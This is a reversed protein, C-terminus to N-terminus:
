RRIFCRTWFLVARASMWVKSPSPSSPISSCCKADRCPTYASWRIFRRPINSNSSRCSRATRSRATSCRRFPKFDHVAELGSVFNQMRDSLGDFAATMSAFMTDGGVAPVEKAVLITGMPPEARFTEDSHWCDTGFPPTTEDNRFKILVPAEKEHPAFPHVTLEDFSRGFDILNQSSINQDRFIILENEVLAAKVAAHQAQSLPKTLDVGTIEAGLNIGVRTATVGASETAIPRGGPLPNLSKQM